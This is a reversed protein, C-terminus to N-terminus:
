IEQRAKDLSSLLADAIECCNTKQYEIYLEESEQSWGMIYEKRHGRPIHKKDIGIVLGV